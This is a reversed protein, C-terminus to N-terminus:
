QNGDSQEKQAPQAAWDAATVARIFASRKNPNLIWEGWSAYGAPAPGHFVCHSWAHKPPQASLARVTPAEMDRLYNM